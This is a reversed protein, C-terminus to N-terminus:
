FFIYTYDSVLKGSPELLGLSPQSMKKKKKKQTGGAIDRPNVM